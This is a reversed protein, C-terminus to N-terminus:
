LARRQGRFRGWSGSSLLGIGDVDPPM